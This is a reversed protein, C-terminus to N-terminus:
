DVDQEGCVYNLVGNTIFSLAPPEFSQGFISVELPNETDPNARLIAITGIRGPFGAWASKALRKDSEFSCTQRAGSDIYVSYNGVKYNAVNADPNACIEIQVGEYVPQGCSTYEQALGHRVREVVPPQDISNFVEIAFGFCISALGGGVLFVPIKHLKGPRPSCNPSREM